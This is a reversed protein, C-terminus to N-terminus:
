RAPSELIEIQEPHTAEIVAGNLKELWGRVRVTRGELALPDVGAEAFLALAEADITVTFDDRWDAGFNLYIRNKVRQATLVKGEVIQFSGVHRATGMPTLVAYAPNNWLGRRAARAQAEAALMDAALGRNDWATHVRALGRRLLEGQIWLGDARYLQVVLRRYRDSKRAGFALRVQKGATLDRLVDRAQDALPWPQGQPRALPPKPAEIGALRLEGLGEVPPEIMLTDGDIVEVVSSVADAAPAPASVLSAALTAGAAVLTLRTM